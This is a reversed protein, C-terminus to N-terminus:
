RQLWAVSTCAGYSHPLLRTYQEDPAILGVLDDELAVALWRSDETWDYVVSPLFFPLRTLLPITRNAEIDHLLLMASNDGPSVANRDQGTMVLYRGDPSFSLSHNLNYLLQLRVEPLRTKLDYAIVYSRFEASDLVVIFLKNPQQPHTAVYGLSLRRTSVVEPLFEYLDAAPIIALPSSEGVTTLVIEDESLAIPGDTEARRIFGYTQNDLWFPARGDGIPTLSLSGPAADGAGLTLPYDRSGEEGQFILYRNNAAVLADEPFTETGGMYVAREGNPSWFPRGPADTAACGDECATLDLIFGRVNGVEPDFTYAVLKEGTPDTEGFSIAYRGDDPVYAPVIQGDQWVNTRWTEIELAFEQMLLTKPDPLASMWIFGPLSYIEAWSDEQPLYRLLSSTDTSQNGEVATCSLYLDEVPDVPPSDAESQDNFAYLWWALDLNNPLPANNADRSANVIGVLFRAFGRSRDLIRQMDAASVGPVGNALFDVAARLEWLRDEDIETPFRSRLYSSLDSMRTRSALIRQHDAADISWPAIGLEGLQYELLINFLLANDCCGWNVAQAIAAGLIHRAYGDRIAEYGAAQMQADGEVPLGVLTPAPLELIDEQERARRLAGLPEALAALAAPDTDLRATLYLDASCDIDQLTACMRGIEADLDAALRAAIAEDRRPYILSLYEGETTTWDGWFEDLPPALLWRSDGRRYITTQQLVITEGTNDVLFPHDVVVIAESLDASFEIQAPREDAPTEEGTAPLIIPLSGEAPALGLPTRDFIMEQKFVEMEAATWTPVRGSLVSRFIEEDGEVVARQVLNHSAIVDTRFAELTAEIRQDVRWWIIGGITAVLVAIVAILRWPPRRRSMRGDGPEIPEDWINQQSRREDEETQWDFNASM